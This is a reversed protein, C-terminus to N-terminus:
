HSQMGSYLKSFFARLKEPSKKGKQTSEVSSCLDFHYIGSYSDILSSINDVNIQGALITTINTSVAEIYDVGLDDLGGDILVAQLLDKILLAEEIQKKSPRKWAKIIPVSIIDALEEIFKNDEIGHLQVCSLGVSEVTAQIESISQDLFVGITNCFAPLNSVIDRATSVDIYRPSVETFILGLADAGMEYSLVADELNTIGCIKARYRKM